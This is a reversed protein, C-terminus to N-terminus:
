YAYALLIGGIKRKRAEYNTMVGEPTSVIIIGVGVAPLYQAEVVNWEEYKVPMRPNISRIYNIKNALRVRFKGGKGDDVYSYDEIYGEEKLVRLVEGILKSYPILAERKGAEEHTKITNLAQALLNVAM